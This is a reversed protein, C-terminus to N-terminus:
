FGRGVRSIGTCDIGASSVMSELILGTGITLCTTAIIEHGFMQSFVDLIDTRCGGPGVPSIM